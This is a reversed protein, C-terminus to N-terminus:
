ETLTGLKKSVELYKDIREIRQYSLEDVGEGPEDVIGETTIYQWVAWIDMLEEELLESNTKTERPGISDKGFRLYKSAVKSVEACEEILKVLLLEKKTM